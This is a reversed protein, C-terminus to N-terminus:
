PRGDSPATAAPQSAALRARCQAFEQTLETPVNADATALIGDSQMQQFRALCRELWECATRRHELRRDAPVAADDAFASLLEFMKYYSVGLLRQARANEPQQEVVTAAEATSREFSAQAADRDGLALQSEGLKSLTTALELRALGDAPDDRLGTESWALGREYAASADGHRGLEAELIGIWQHGIAADKRLVADGPENALLSEIKATFSRYGELAEQKRGQGYDATAQRFHRVAESRGRLTATVTPDHVHEGVRAAEDFHRLAGDLDGQRQLVHGMREHITAIGGVLTDNGPHRVLAAEGSDLAQQFTALAEAERGLRVLVDGTKTLNLTRLRDTRLLGPQLRDVAALREAAQRYSALAAQANGLNSTAYDGHIDGIVTYAAALELQVDVDDAAEAALIELYRQGQEALAQRAPAAGPLRAILPDFYLVFYRALDRVQDFREQARAEAARAADRQAAAQRWYAVSVVLAACVVLLFAAAVGAALRHRRLTKRLVYWASDRRAQIPEGALYLELDRALEGATQYRQEREKALAKLVITELDADIALPSVGVGSTDPLRALRRPRLPPTEVIHQLTRVVDMEIPYPYRGTLLEYLIVGLSYVDSRVDVADPQARAQEPSMYPLTGAVLGTAATVTVEARGVPRALGFDLIHPEGAEDVLINSPKLDRHIVGRQHAHNVGKAVAALLRVKDRVGPAADLVYRDLPAGRIYDMVFYQHGDRTRGSDFVTVIHPHRLTAVLEIEREFRRRTAESAYRGERLVKLAVERKTGTQLARFVIGQGGRRIEALVEYGPIEWHDPLADAPATLAARLAGSAARLRDIWVNHTGELDAARQACASCSALHARVTAAADAGLERAHWAALQDDTLCSRACTENLAM